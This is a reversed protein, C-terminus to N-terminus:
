SISHSPTEVPSLLEGFATLRAPLGFILIEHMRHSRDSFGANSGLEISKIIKRALRHSHAGPAAM